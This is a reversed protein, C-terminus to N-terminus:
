ETMSTRSSRDVVPADALRRQIGEHRVLTDLRREAEPRDASDYIASFSEKILWALRMEPSQEFVADLWQRDQDTLKGARKMFLWRSRYFLPEGRPNHQRATGGDRGVMMHKPRRSVRIRVRQAAQDVSRIVHFKDAVIRACPIMAEAAQRFPWHCDIVVTQVGARVSPELLGLASMAGRKDRGEVIGLDSLVTHFRFRRRFSSEDLSIVRPPEIPQDLERNAYDEFAELM